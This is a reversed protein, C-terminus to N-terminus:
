AAGSSGCGDGEGYMALGIQGTRIGYDSYRFRTSALPIVIFPLTSADLPAGRSDVGSTDPLYDPDSM